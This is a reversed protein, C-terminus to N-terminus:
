SGQEQRYERLTDTFGKERAWASDPLKAQGTPWNELHHEATRLAGDVWAPEETRIIRNATAQGAAYEKPYRTAPDFRRVAKGTKAPAIGRATM